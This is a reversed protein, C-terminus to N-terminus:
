ADKRSAAGRLSNGLAMRFMGPNLGSWKKLRKGLGANRALKMMEKHTKGRLKKAVSDGRDFSKRGSPTRVNSTEYKKVQDPSIVSKSKKKGM